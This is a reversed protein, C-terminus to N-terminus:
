KHKVYKILHAAPLLETIECRNLDRVVANWKESTVGFILASTIFFYLINACPWMARLITSMRPLIHGFILFAVVRKEM